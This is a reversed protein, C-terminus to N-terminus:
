DISHQNQQGDASRDHPPDPGLDAEDGQVLVNPEMPLDCISHQDKADGVGGRVIDLLCEKPRAFFFSLSFVPSVLISICWQVAEEIDLSQLNTCLGCNLNVVRLRTTGGAVHHQQTHKEHVGCSVVSNTLLGELSEPVSVVQKDRKEKTEVGVSHSTEHTVSDLRVRREGSVLVPVVTDSVQTPAPLQPSTAKVQKLAKVALDTGTTLGLNGADDAM